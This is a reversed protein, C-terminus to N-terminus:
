LNRYTFRLTYDVDSLELKGKVTVYTTSSSTAILSGRISFLVSCNYELTSTGSLATQQVSSNQYVGSASYTLSNILVGNNLPKDNRKWVFDFSENARIFHSSFSADCQLTFSNYGSIDLVINASSSVSVSLVSAAAITLFVDSITSYMYAKFKSYQETTISTTAAPGGGVSTHATINCSYNTYPLLGSLTTTTQSGMVTWRYEQEGDFCQLQYETIVGNPKLPTMWMFQVFVSGKLSM